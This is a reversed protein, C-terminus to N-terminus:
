KQRDTINIIIKRGANKRFGLFYRGFDRPFPYVLNSYCLANFKLKYLPTELVIWQDPFSIKYNIPLPYNYDHYEALVKLKEDQIRISGQNKNMIEHKFLPRQEIPRTFLEFFRNKSILEKNRERFDFESTEFPVPKFWNLFSSIIEYETAEVILQNRIELKKTSDSWLTALERSENMAAQFFIELSHSFTYGDVRCPLSDKEKLVYFGNLTKRYRM